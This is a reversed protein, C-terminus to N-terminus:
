EMELCLTMRCLVDRWQLAIYRCPCCGKFWTGDAEVQHWQGTVRVVSWGGGTCLRALDWGAATLRLQTLWPVTIFVVRRNVGPRGLAAAAAATKSVSRFSVLGAPVQLQM